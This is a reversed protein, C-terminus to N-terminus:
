MIQTTYFRNIDCKCFNRKKSRYIKDCRLATIPTVREPPTHTNPYQHIYQTSHIGYWEYNKNKKKKETESENNGNRETETSTMGNAGVQGNFYSWDHIHAIHKISVEYINWQTSFSYLPWPTQTIVQVIKQHVTVIHAVAIAIFQIKAM